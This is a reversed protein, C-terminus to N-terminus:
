DIKWARWTTVRALMNAERSGAVPDCVLWRNAKPEKVRAFVHSFNNPAGFGVTILEAERGLQRCMVTILAAIDDCDGIARGHRLMEEILRQADICWETALPDNAYRVKEAVFNRVAIIESLYDKPQLGRVAYETASRVLVSREGRPGLIQQRMVDITTTPGKFAGFRAPPSDLALM